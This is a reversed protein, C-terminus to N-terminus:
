LDEEPRPWPGYTEDLYSEFFGRRYFADVVAQIIKQDLNPPEPTASMLHMVRRELDYADTPGLLTHYSARIEHVRESSAYPTRM